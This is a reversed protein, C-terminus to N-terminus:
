KHQNYKLQQQQAIYEAECFGERRGIYFAAIILLIAVCVAQNKKDRLAEPLKFM